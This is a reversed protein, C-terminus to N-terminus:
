GLDGQAMPGRGAGRGPDPSVEAAPTWLHIGQLTGGEPLGPPQDYPLGPLAANYGPDGPTNIDPYDAFQEEKFLIGNKVYGKWTCSGTCNIGHTSRGFSDFSWQDRYLTEWGRYPYAGLPDLVPRLLDMAFADTAALTGATVVAGKLFDRRTIKNM